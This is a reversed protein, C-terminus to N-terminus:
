SGSVQTATDTADGATGGDGRALWANEIEDLEVKRKEAEVLTREVAEKTGFKSAYRQKDMLEVARLSAGANPGPRLATNLLIANKMGQWQLETLTEVGMLTQQYLTTQEELLYGVRRRASWERDVGRTRDMEEVAQIVSFGRVRLQAYEKAEDSLHLHAMIESEKVGRGKEADVVDNTPEGIGEERYQSYNPGRIRGRYAYPKVKKRPAPSQPIDDM